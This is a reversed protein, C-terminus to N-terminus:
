TCRLARLQKLYYMCADFQIMYWRMKLGTEVLGDTLGAGSVKDIHGARGM